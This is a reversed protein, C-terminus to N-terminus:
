AAPYAVLGLRERMAWRALMMAGVAGLGVALGIWVGLGALGGAFALYWATGFGIAWYGFAAFIMPWRTDQIGRLVGAGIAQVADGLQFVAAVLLFQSALAFTLAAAATTPQIFLGILLENAAVMAISLAAAVAIGLWLAVRGALAVGARDGRGHALGVRVTAAQAIGFPLQFALAAVQIAVAHAALSPKGIIGMLFVAANFITIELALTVGIPLGLRMLGAFRPWDSRWWRGFLRYRRFGRDLLIYLALGAFLFGNAAANAIAAGELGLGRWGAVGFVLPVCLALNLAVGVATVWLAALPRELATVFCRLVIFMLFPAIGWMAIRVFRAAPEALDSSQGLALLLYESHWLVLWMPMSILLAAWLGQRVSRRVERVSHRRRGREAAILPAVATMVGIGFIAFAWMMNLGLASAALADVSYRGLVLVDTTHIAMQALGGLVLPWALALTASVESRLESRQPDAPSFLSAAAPM